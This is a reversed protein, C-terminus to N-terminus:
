QNNLTVDFHFDRRSALSFLFFGKVVEVHHNSYYRCYDIAQEESILLALDSVHESLKPTAM